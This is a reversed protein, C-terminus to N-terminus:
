TGASNAHSAVNGQRQYVVPPLPGPQPGSRRCVPQHAPGDSANGDGGGVREALEFVAVHDKNVQPWVAWSTGSTETLRGEFTRVGTDSTVESFDAWADRLAIVRARTPVTPPAAQLTLESVHFNREWELGTRGQCASDALAELRLGTIDKLETQFVLTYTDRKAPNARTFSSPAM